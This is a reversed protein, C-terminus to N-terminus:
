LMINSQSILVYWLCPCHMLSFPMVQVRGHTPGFWSLSSWFTRLFVLPKPISQLCRERLLVLLTIISRYPAYQSFGVINRCEVSISCDDHASKQETDREFYFLEILIFPKMTHLHKSECMCQAQNSRVTFKECCKVEIEWLCAPM